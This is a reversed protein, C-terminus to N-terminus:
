IELEDCLLKGMKMHKIMCHVDASFKVHFYKEEDGNNLFLPMKAKSFLVKVNEM